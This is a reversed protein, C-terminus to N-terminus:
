RALTITVGTSGAPVPDSLAGSPGDKTGANGDLDLRAALSVTEPFPRRGMMPPMNDPGISFAVAGVSPRLNVAATPPGGVQGAPRAFVFLVAGPPVETGEPIVVTGTIPEPRQATATPAAPTEGPRTTESPRTTEGLQEAKIEGNAMKLLETFGEEPYLQEGKRWMAKAGEADGAQWRMSGKWALARGHEPSRALARDLLEEAVQTQGMRVRVIAQQTMADPQEPALALLQEANNFVDIWGEADVLAWGLGVRADVDNPNAAVAARAADLRASPKPQLAPPVGPVPEGPRGAGPPPLASTPNATIDGGTMPMNGTREATGTQLSFLLLAAMAVVAGGTFAGKLQPSLGAPAPAAVTRAGAERTAAAVAPALGELHHLERLVKAAEQELADREGAAAEIGGALDTDELDRLQQMLQLKRQSLDEIRIARAEARSRGSHESDAAGSPGRRARLALGVGLVLGVVAAVLGPGWDVEGGM